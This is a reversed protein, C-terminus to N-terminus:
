VVPPRLGLAVWDIVAETRPGVDARIMATVTADVILSIAESGSVGGDVLAEYAYPTTLSFALAAAADPTMEGRLRGEEDLRRCIVVLHGRRSRDIREMRTRVDADVRRVRLVFEIFTWAHAWFRLTADLMARLATEGDSAQWVQGFGAFLGAEREVRGVIASLLGGKSGFHSYLTPVSVGARRAIEEVQFRDADPVLAVAADLIRAKTAASKEARRGQTYQRVM